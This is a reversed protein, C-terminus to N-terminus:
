VVRVLRTWVSKREVFRAMRPGARRRVLTEMRMQRRRRVRSLSAQPRSASRRTRLSTLRRERSADGEVVEGEGGDREDAASV